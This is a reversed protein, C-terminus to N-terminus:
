GIGTDQVGLLPGGGGCATITLPLVVKTFVELFFLLLGPSGACGDAQSARM